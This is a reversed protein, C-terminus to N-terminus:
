GAAVVQDERLGTRKAAILAYERKIEIGVFPRGLEKSVVGVTGTGFFPDLVSDDARSSALVCPRVLDAPFSAYHAENLPETPISWVTRKRRWRRGDKTSEIMASQDYYYREAKTLMFLHEHALTPRDRVSEPQCNPQYWIVDSRLYWGREQLRFALRWPIGLLDKPKLGDPTPPRYSMQRAPNKRDAARWGRNGSTYGDGVNLWLTGEPRLVRRVETFVAILRDLYADLSPEAGIQDGVGYDRLGWYPPSTICVQVSEDPLTRLVTEADGVYILSRAGVDSEHREEPDQQGLPLQRSRDFLGFQQNVTRALRL